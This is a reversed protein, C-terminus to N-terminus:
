RRDKICGLALTCEGFDQEPVIRQPRPPYPYPPMMPPIIILNPNAVSQRSDGNTFSRGDDTFCVTNMGHPYCYVAAQVSTVIFLFAIVMGIAFCKLIFKIM